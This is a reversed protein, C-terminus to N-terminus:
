FVTATDLMDAVSSDTNLLTAGVGGNSILQQLFIRQEEFSNSLLLAKRWHFGKCMQSVLQKFRGTCGSEPFDELLLESYRHLIRLVLQQDLKGTAYPDDQPGFKGIAQGMISSFVSPNRLAARGIFLGAIGKRARAQASLFDVVDGSGCVPIKVSAAVAEVVEWDAQDRYLQVRTRGHVALGEVGEGEAIRAIQLANCSASDWGSRMKLTLPVSIAKRIAALIEKLHNPQRMLECGGGRKVVKPAPCGCNIDVIDAGADQAMLAGDRMRNIDYGFIQIAFPRESERFRLMEASRRSTRTLGEVSIFESMVLGVSGPNFERILRRFASCTVGSMPALVLGPAIEINRIKYPKMACARSEFLM